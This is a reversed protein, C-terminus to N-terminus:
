TAVEVATEAKRGVIAVKAGAAHLREAIARGIGRTSGTVFAVQGTLDIGNMRPVAPSRPRHRALSVGAGAPDAQGPRGAGDRSRNRHLALRTRATGPGPCM